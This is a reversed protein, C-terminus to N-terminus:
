ERAACEAWVMKGVGDREGVGWRGDGVLANVLALGRGGEDGDAAVRLEPRTEAADHVEIRVGDATRVYRTQVDRGAVRAHVVANTFLESLVLAASETVDELGWGKLVSELEHRARGVSRATRPWLRAVALEGSQGPPERHM